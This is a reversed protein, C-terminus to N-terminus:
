EENGPQHAVALSVFSAIRHADVFDDIRYGEAESSCFVLGGVVSGRLYVPVRLYSRVGRRALHRFLPQADYEVTEFETNGDFCIRGSIRDREEDERVDRMLYAGREVALKLEGPLSIEGGAGSVDGSLAIPQITAGDRSLLGLLLYEHPLIRRAEASIRSFIERIDRTEALLPGLFDGSSPAREM